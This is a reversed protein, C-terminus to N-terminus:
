SYRIKNYHNKVAEGIALLLISPVGLRLITLLTVVLISKM